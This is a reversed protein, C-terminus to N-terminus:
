RARTPAQATPVGAAKVICGDPCLSGDKSHAHPVDRICGRERDLDLSDSYKEQSFAITTRKGGPAARLM